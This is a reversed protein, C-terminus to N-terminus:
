VTAEDESAEESLRQPRGLSRFTEIFKPWKDEFRKLNYGKEIFLACLLLKNKKKSRSHKAIRRLLTAFSKDRKELRWRISNKYTYLKGGYNRHLLEVGDPDLIWSTVEISIRLAGNSVRAGIYGDGDFYGSFWRLSVKSKKRTQELRRQDKLLKKYVKIEKSDCYTKDNSLVYEILDQKIVSHKRINELFHKAKDGVLRVRSVSTEKRTYIKVGYVESLEELLSIDKQSIEISPRIVYRNNALKNVAYGVSGDADVLGAYYKYDLM